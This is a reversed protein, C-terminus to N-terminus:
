GGRGVRFSIWAGSTNIKLLMKLPTQLCLKAGSFVRNTSLKAKKNKNWRSCSLFSRPSATFLKFSLTAFRAEGHHVYKADSIREKHRQWSTLHIDSSNWPSCCLHAPSPFSARFLLKQSFGTPKQELWLLGRAHNVKQETLKSAFYFELLLFINKFNWSECQKEKRQKTIKKEEQSKLSCEQPSNVVFAHQVKTTVRM